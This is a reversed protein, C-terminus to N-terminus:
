QEAASGGLPRSAAALPLVLLLLLLVLLLLQILLLLALRLLHAMQALQAAPVAPLQLALPLSACVQLRLAQCAAARLSPM